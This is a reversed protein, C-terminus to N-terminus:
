RQAPLRDPLWTKAPEGALERVLKPVLFGALMAKLQRHITLAQHDEVNFHQSGRVPDLVHLYYPQCRCDFLRESLEALTAASDNVGRLLVSQNLCCIGAQHLQQLAQAVDADIERPHNTHVVVVSQLRTATLLQCLAPTIRQPIAIPLRTHIRLRRIHPLQALRTILWDLQRDSASLPDGGSLIVENVQPQDALYDLAHQWDQRSNQNDTYPFERRFCYRCNIACFSTAILLVRSRYKHILGPVPNFAQEALPDSVFGATELLEQAQPLVQLLLPDHPNGPEIRRLYPEPVRLPFRQCALAIAASDGPTLALRRCLEAPDTVAQQLISQWRIETTAADQCAVPSVPIM